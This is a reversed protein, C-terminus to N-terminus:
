EEKEEEDEGGSVGGGGGGGSMMRSTPGTQSCPTRDCERRRHAQIDPSDRERGRGREDTGIQSM